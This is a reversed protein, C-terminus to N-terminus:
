RVILISIWKLPWWLYMPIRFQVKCKVLDLYTFTCITWRVYGIVHGSISEQSLLWHMLLCPLFFEDINMMSLMNFKTIPAHLNTRNQFYCWKYQTWTICRSMYKATSAIVSHLINLGHLWYGPVLFYLYIFWACMECSTSSIETWLHWWLWLYLDIKVSSLLYQNNLLELYSSWLWENNCQEFNNSGFPWFWYEQM